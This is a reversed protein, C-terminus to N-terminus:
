QIQTYDLRQLFGVLPSTISFLCRPVRNMTIDSIKAVIDADNPACLVIVTFGVDPDFAWVSILLAIFDTATPAVDLLGPYTIRVAPV